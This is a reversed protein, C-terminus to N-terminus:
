GACDDADVDRYVTITQAHVIGNEDRCGSADCVDECAGAVSISCVDGSKGGCVRRPAAEEGPPLCATLHLDDGFAQGYYTAEIDAFSGRDDQTTGLAPHDGRLSIQVRDGTANTRAVLCASIWGQCEEDCAGGVDGWEPALRHTRALEISEGDLEVVVSQDPELACSVTYALVERGSPDAFASAFRADGLTSSRLPLAAFGDLAIAHAALGNMSLANFTLARPEVCVAPADTTQCALVAPLALSFGLVLHRLTTM